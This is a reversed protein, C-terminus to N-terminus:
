GDACWHNGLVVGGREALHAYRSNKQAAFLPFKLTLEDHLISKKNHIVCELRIYYDGENFLHAPIPFSVKHSGVTVFRGMTTPDDATHRRAITQNRQNLISFGFLLDPDTKHVEYAITLHPQDSQTFFESDGSLAFETFEIHEDGMRGSWALPRNQLSKMYHGVCAEIEGFHGMVGKDLWLGKNCLSLVNGVDHSVFLVTRGVQGLENLKKLCKEQFLHDGVALVEDVILVDPDLHAAIAFGLRAYMGSSYRKVPTDLFKEVEAFDVIRDFQARIERSTMGLIAGNLFINERGTLEPHFGTGVELLSSLRGRITVRGETPNIIRSLIKLLTSKGAGNKGIIGLRDGEELKFSLGKLAWFNEVITSPPVYRGVLRKAYTALTEVLTTNGRMARHGIQYEKGLNEVEIM